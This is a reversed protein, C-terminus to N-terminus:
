AISAIVRDLQNATTAGSLVAAIRGRRDLVFTVPPSSVGFENAVVGNDDVLSPYLAGYRAAFRQAADVADNFVVGVLVAGNARHDQQWAFTSLEATEKQCPACWSAWFSIVVIRNSPLSWHQGSLTRGSVLPARTGLLPSPTLVDDVAPRTGLFVTLVLVGVLAAVGGVLVRRKM